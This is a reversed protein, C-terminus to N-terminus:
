HKAKRIFREFESYDVKLGNKTKQYYVIPANINEMLHKEQLYTVPKISVPYEVGKILIFGDIGKSEEDPTSLRYSESDGAFIEALKSLIPEQVMMGWFTKTIVLDEVWRRITDRDLNNLTERFTEVKQEIRDVANEIAEEGTIGPLVEASLYFEKWSEFKWRDKPYKKKFEKFLESMQGVVEPRTGHAFTNALNLLPSVYKEFESPPIDLIRKLEDKSIIVVKPKEKM